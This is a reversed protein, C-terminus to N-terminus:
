IKSLENIKGVTSIFFDDFEQREIEEVNNGLKKKIFGVAEFFDEEESISIENDYVQMYTTREKDHEVVKWFYKSYPFNKSEEKLYITRM